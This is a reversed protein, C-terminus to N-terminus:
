KGTIEHRVRINGINWNEHVRTYDLKDKFNRLYKCIPRYQSCLGSLIFGSLQEKYRIDECIPQMRMYTAGM